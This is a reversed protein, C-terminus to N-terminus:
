KFEKHIAYRIESVDRMQALMNDLWNATELPLNITQLCEQVTAPHMHYICEIYLQQFKPTYSKISQLDKKFHELVKETLVSSWSNNYANLLLMLETKYLPSKQKKIEKLLYQDQEAETLALHFLKALSTEDIQKKLKVRKEFFVKAWEINEEQLTRKFWAGLILEGWDKNRLAAGILTDPAQGLSSTLYSLPTHELVQRTLSANKGEAAKQEQVIGDRKLDKSLETILEIELKLSRGQKKLSLLADARQCMRQSFDSNPLRSLLSAAKARVRKSTDDLTAELFDEEVDELSQELCVLLDVRTDAKAESWVNKVLGFARELVHKCLQGFFKSHKEWDTELTDLLTDDYYKTWHWNPNLRALWNGREGLVNAIAPRLKTSNVGYDLFNPLSGAPLRKGALHLQELWEELLKEYGVDQLMTSLHKSLSASPLTDAPCPAVTTSSSEDNVDPLRGAKRQLCLAAADSLLQAESSADNPLLKSQYSQRETGLLAVARLSDWTTM